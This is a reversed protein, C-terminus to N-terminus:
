MSKSTRIGGCASTMVTKMGFGFGNSNVTSKGSYGAVNRGYLSTRPRGNMTWRGRTGWNGNRHAIGAVSGYRTSRPGSTGGYRGAEPNKWSWGSAPGAQTKSFYTSKGASNGSSSGADNDTRSKSFGGSSGGSGSSSSRGRGGGGRGRAECSALLCLLLTWKLNMGFTWNQGFSRQQVSFDFTRKSM